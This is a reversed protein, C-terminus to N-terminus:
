GDGADSVAIRSLSCNQQFQAEDEVRVRRGVAEIRNNERGTTTNTYSGEENKM